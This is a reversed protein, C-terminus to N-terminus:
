WCYQLYHHNWFQKAISTEAGDQTKLDYLEDIDYGSKNKLILGYRKQMYELAYKELFGGFDTLTGDTDFVIKIYIGWSEM